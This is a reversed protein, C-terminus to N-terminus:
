DQVDMAVGHWAHSPCSLTADGRGGSELIMLTILTTSLAQIESYGHLPSALCGALGNLV